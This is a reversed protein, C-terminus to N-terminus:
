AKLAMSRTVLMVLVLSQCNTRLHSEATHGTGQMLRNAITAVEVRYCSELEIVPPRSTHSM